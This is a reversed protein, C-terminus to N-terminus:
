PLFLFTLESFKSKKSLHFFSLSFHDWSIEKSPFMKLAFKPAIMIESREELTMCLFSLCM